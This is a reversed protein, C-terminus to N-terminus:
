GLSLAVPGTWTITVPRCPVGTANAHEGHDHELQCCECRLTADPNAGMPAVTSAGCGNCQIHIM